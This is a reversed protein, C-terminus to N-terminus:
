ASPPRLPALEGQVEEVFRHLGTEKAHRSRDISVAAAIEGLLAVIPEGPRARKCLDDLTAKPYEVKRVNPIETKGDLGLATRVAHADDLLWAEAHPDAEGLAVPLRATASKPEAREQKRAEDLDSLRSKSPSRDRDITAVLGEAGDDIAERMAFKLKRAYGSGKPLVVETWPRFSRSRVERGLIGAVLPGLTAEDRRGDGVFM